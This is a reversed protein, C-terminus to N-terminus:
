TSPGLLLMALCGTGALTLVFSLTAAFRFGVKDCLWGATLIGGTSLSGALGYLGAAVLPSYGTEVLYAVVQPIILYMGLATMHFTAALDWFGPTRLAAAFSPAAAVGPAAATAAQGRGLAAPTEPRNARAAEFRATAEAARMRAVDPSGGAIRRWPLM